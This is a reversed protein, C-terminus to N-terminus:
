GSPLPPWYATGPPMAWLMTLMKLITSTLSFLAACACAGQQFLADIHRHLASRKPLGTLLNFTSLQTIKQQDIHVVVMCPAGARAAGDYRVTASLTTEEGTASVITLSTEEGPAEPSTFLPIDAAKEAWCRAERIVGYRRPQKILSFVNEAGDILVVADHVYELAALMSQSGFIDNDFPM